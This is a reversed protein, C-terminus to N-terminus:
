SLTVAQQAKNRRGDGVMGQECRSGERFQEVNLCAAIWVQFSSGVYM